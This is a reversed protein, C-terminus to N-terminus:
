TDLRQCRSAMVLRASRRQPVLRADHATGYPGGARRPDPTARAVSRALWRAHHRQALWGRAVARRAPPSAGPRHGPHYRAHVPATISGGLRVQISGSGALGPWLEGLQAAQMALTFNAQPQGFSGQTHLHNKGLSLDSDFRTLHLTRLLHTLNHQRTSVAGTARASLTGSLPRGNWTSEQAIDLALEAQELTQRAQAQLSFRAEATFVAPPIAGALLAGLDFRRASLTGHLRERAGADLSEPQLSARLGSGNALAMDLNFQRVPLAASIDLRADAQATLGGGTLNAALRLDALSGHADLQAQFACSTDRQGGDAVGPMTQVVCLPSTPDTGHLAATLAVQMPWPATLKALQATGHARVRALRHDLTLHEVTLSLGNSDLQGQARLDGLAVPLSEGDQILRFRGLALHDVLVKVPLALPADDTNAREPASASMDIHLADLALERVHLTRQALARWAVQVRLGEGAITMDDLALSLRDVSLGKLVSGHIGQVEGDFQAVTTRLLFVAGPQTGLTWGLFTTLLILLGTLCPLWWVLMARLIARLLKLVIL